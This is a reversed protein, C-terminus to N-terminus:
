QKKKYSVQLHSTAGSNQPPPYRPRLRMDVRRLVEALRSGNHKAMNAVHDMRLSLPINPFM